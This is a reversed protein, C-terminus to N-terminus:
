VADNRSKAYRRDAKSRVVGLSIVFVLLAAIDFWRWQVRRLYIPILPNFLVAVAGFIWVWFGKQLQHARFAIYIASGCVVLRLLTYFGIPWRHIVALLLLVMSLIAAIKSEADFLAM